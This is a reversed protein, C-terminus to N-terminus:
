GRPFSDNFFNRFEKPTYKKKKKFLRNFHSYNNFGCRFAVDAISVNTEMLLKCANALRLNNLNEIFSMGTRQKVFRSFSADSMNVLTAVDKLTIQSQYNREMYEFVTTLRRSNYKLKAAGNANVKSLITFDKSIALDNLISSLLILSDFGVSDKLIKLRPYIAVAVERSFLVGNVSLDLLKRLLYFQNSHIFREDFLDQHWQLTIEEIKSAPRGNDFWSHVLNPGILVLDTESIIEISDGVIRKAGPANGVFNLEFEQHYHLPFDFRRKTRSFISFCNEPSLPVIEKLIKNM